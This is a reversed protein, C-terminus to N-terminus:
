GPGFRLLGPNFLREWAVENIAMQSLFSSFATLTFFHIHSFMFADEVNEVERGVYFACQDVKEASSAKGNYGYAVRWLSGDAVVVVPLVASVKRHNPQAPVFSGKVLDIASSVAQAWKEYIDSDPGVVAKTSKPSEPKLRLLSKGVFEGPRYFSQNAKARYVESHEGM